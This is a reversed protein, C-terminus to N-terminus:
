LLTIHEFTNPVHFYANRLDVSIIWNQPKIAYIVNALRLM